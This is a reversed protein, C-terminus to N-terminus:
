NGVCLQHFYGQKIQVHLLHTGLRQNSSSIWCNIEDKIEVNEKIIKCQFFDSLLGDIDSCIAYEKAKEQCLVLFQFKQPKYKM